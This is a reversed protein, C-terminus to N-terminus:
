TQLQHSKLLILCTWTRTQAFKIPTRDTKLLIQDFILRNKILILGKQSAVALFSRSDPRPYTLKAFLQLSFGLFVTTM